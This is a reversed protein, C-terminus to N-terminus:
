AKPLPFAPTASSRLQFMLWIGKDIASLPFVAKSFLTSWDCCFLGFRAAGL